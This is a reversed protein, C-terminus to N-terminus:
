MQADGICIDADEAAWIGNGYGNKIRIQETKSDTWKLQWVLV